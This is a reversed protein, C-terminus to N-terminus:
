RCCSKDDKSFKSDIWCKGYYLIGLWVTLLIGEVYGFSNWISILDM